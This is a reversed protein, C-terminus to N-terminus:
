SGAPRGLDYVTQGGVTTATFTAAVWSAISRGTAGSGAGGPGAGGQPDGQGAIFYSVKGAAVYQKFQDLTPTPDSGMFGGIALVAKGSALELSGALQSGVTAAAWTAGTGRLLSVLASDTTGASMGAPGGTIGGPRRPRGLIGPPAGGAGPGGGPVVSGAPGAGAGPVLVGGPGLAGATAAPGASPIAGGHPTGATQLAYATSGLLGAAAAVVAVATAMRGLRAPGVLLGAAAVGALLVALSRLEPHWTPTRDLLVLGWVGTAAVTLALAVRALRSGRRRWLETAGIAVLAAISPALAVNYYPHIVGHMYSFVVGTVLLWGGWLLLAARTRDTRPARRTLWAVVGLAILAAPLLWSVQTGMSDGFLRWLGSAGGFGVGGGAPGGGAPGGGAPGGGAPGGDAGTIRGLGNYGFALELVSNTQSGGIYPRSNAPWLEVLAVWWGASVVIAALGALLQGLRRSVSTPAAVLYAVAFAPVVLFAQLMKTLFGFGVAAGAVMLWRTSGSEVARVMAYGAAVLLLTLLADPNNFRFMLVAVPTVALVAGAMLGAVPGFWRRVTAFLLWVAAVGALAQPALMSWSSFGFLRGSLAMLWLAAPPKDVTIFNASDFSGFLFARWSETGAQVAAAYFSNAYGSGSLGWLYLAATAALLCTLAYRDWRRRPPAPRTPATASVLPETLTTIAM